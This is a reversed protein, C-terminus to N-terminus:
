KCRGGQEPEFYGDDNVSYPVCTHIFYCDGQGQNPCNEVRVGLLAEGANPHYKGTVNDGNEDFIPV